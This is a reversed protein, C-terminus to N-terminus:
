GRENYDKAHAVDSASRVYGADILARIMSLCEL